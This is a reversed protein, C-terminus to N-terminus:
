CVQDNTLNEAGPVPARAPDRAWALCRTAAHMVRKRDFQTIPDVSEGHTTKFQRFMALSANATVTSAAVTNNEDADHADSTDCDDGADNLNGKDESIAVGTEIGGAFEEIERKLNAHNQSKTGQVFTVNQESLLFTFHRVADSLDMDPAHKVRIVEKSVM